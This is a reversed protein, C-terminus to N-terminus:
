IYRFSVLIGLREDVNLCKKVESLQKHTPHLIIERRYDNDKIEKQTAKHSYGFEDSRTIYTAVIKAIDKEQLVNQKGEKVFAKSADIM